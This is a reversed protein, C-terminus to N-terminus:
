LCIEHYLYQLDLLLLIKLYFYFLILYFPQKYHCGFHEYYLYLYTLFLGLRYTTNSLPNNTTRVIGSNKNNINTITSLPNNATTVIAGNKNNTNTM